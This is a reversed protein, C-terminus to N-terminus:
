VVSVHGTATIELQRQSEGENAPVRGNDKVLVARMTPDVVRDEVNSTCMRSEDDDPM